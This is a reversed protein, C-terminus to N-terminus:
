CFDPKCWEYGDSDKYYNDDSQMEPYVLFRSKKSKNELKIMKFFDIVTYVGEYEDVIIIEKENEILYAEMEKWSSFVENSQLLPSLWGVTQALHIEFRRNEYNIEANPMKDFVFDSKKSTAYYNVSM